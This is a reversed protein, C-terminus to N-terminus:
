DDERWMKAELEKALEIAEDLVDMEHLALLLFLMRRQSPRMIRHHASGKTSTWSRVTYDAVAMLEALRPTRGVPNDDNIRQSVVHVIHPRKAPLKHAKGVTPRQRGAVATKPGPQRLLVPRRSAPAPPAKVPMKPRSAAILKSPM